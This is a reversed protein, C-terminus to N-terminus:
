AAVEQCRKLLAYTQPATGTGERWHPSESDMLACLEVWVAVIRAWIPSCDAMRHLNYRILPVSEVLLRCRRLDATDLPHSCDGGHRTIHAVMAMSSLGREGNVLWRMLETSM